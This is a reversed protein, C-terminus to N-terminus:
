CKRQINSSNGGGRIVFVMPLYPVKLDWQRITNDQSATVLWPDYIKLIKIRNTHGEFTLLQKGNQLGIIIYALSWTLVQTTM